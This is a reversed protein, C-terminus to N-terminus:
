FGGSAKGLIGEPSISPAAEESFADFVIHKPPGQFGSITFIAHCNCSVPCKVGFNSFSGLVRGFHSRKTVQQAGRPRGLAARPDNQLSGLIECNQLLTGISVESGM